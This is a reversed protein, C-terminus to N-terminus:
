LNVKNPLKTVRENLWIKTFMEGRSTITDAMHGHHNEELIHGGHNKELIHGNEQYFKRGYLISLVKDYKLLVLTQWPGGTGKTPM